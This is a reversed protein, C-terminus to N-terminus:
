PLKLEGGGNWDTLTLVFAMGGWHFDGWDTHLEESLGIRTAVAFFFIKLTMNLSDKSSKRFM